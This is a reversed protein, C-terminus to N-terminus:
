KQLRETGPFRGGCRGSVNHEMLKEVPNEPFKKNVVRIELILFNFASM